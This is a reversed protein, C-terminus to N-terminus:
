PVGNQRVLGGAFGDWLDIPLANQATQVGDALSHRRKADLNFALHGRFDTFIAFTQMRQRIPPFRRREALVNLKATTAPLHHSNAQFGLLVAWLRGTHALHADLRSVASNASHVGEPPFPSGDKTL